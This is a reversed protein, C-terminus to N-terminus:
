QSATSSRSMTTALAQRDLLSAPRRSSVNGPRVGRQCLENPVFSGSAATAWLKTGVFRVALRVVGQAALRVVVRVEEARGDVLVVAVLGLVLAEELPLEDREPADDGLVHL